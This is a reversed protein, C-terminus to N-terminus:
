LLHSLFVKLVKESEFQGGGGGGFFFFFFFFILLLLLLFYSREAEAGFHLLKRIIFRNLQLDDSHSDWLSSHAVPNCCYRSM